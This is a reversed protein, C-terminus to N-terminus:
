STEQSKPVETRSHVSVTGREDIYIEVRVWQGTPELRSGDVRDVVVTLDFGGPGSFFMKQTQESGTCALKATMQLKSM